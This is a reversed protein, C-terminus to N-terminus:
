RAADTVQDKWDIRNSWRASPRNAWQGRRPRGIEKSVRERNRKKGITPIKIESRCRLLKWLDNVRPEVCDRQDCEPKWRGNPTKTCVTDMHESYLWVDCRELVSELRAVVTYDILLPRTTVRVLFWSCTYSELGVICGHHHRDRPTNDLTTCIMVISIYRM